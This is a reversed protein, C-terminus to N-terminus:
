ASLFWSLFWASLFRNLRFFHFKMLDLPLFAILKFLADFEIAYPFTIITKGKFGGLIPDCIRYFYASIIQASYHLDFVLLVM